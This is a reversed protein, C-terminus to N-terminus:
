FNMIDNSSVMEKKPDYEIPKITIKRKLNRVVYAESSKWLLPFRGNNISKKVVYLLTTASLADVILELLQDSDNLTKLMLAEDCM